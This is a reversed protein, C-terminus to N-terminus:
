LEFTFSKYYKDFFNYVNKININETKGNISYMFDSLLAFREGCLRVSDFHNDKIFKGIGHCFKFVGDDGSCASYFEWDLNGMDLGKLDLCYIYLLDMLSFYSLLKIKDCNSINKNDKIFKIFNEADILTIHKSKIEDFIESANKNQIRNIYDVPSASLLTLDALSSDPGTANVVCPSVTSFTVLASCIGSLIKIKKNKM